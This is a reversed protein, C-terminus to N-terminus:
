QNDILASSAEIDQLFTEFKGNDMEVSIRDNLYAVMVQYNFTEQKGIMKLQRVRDATDALNNWYGKKGEERKEIFKLFLYQSQKSIRRVFTICQHLKDKSVMRYGQM